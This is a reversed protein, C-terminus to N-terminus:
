ATGGLRADIACARCADAWEGPHTACEQARTPNGRHYHYLEPENKIARLVYRRPNTVEDASRSLVTEAVKRAHSRDGRTATEIKQWDEDTLADLASPSQSPYTVVSLPRSPVPRPDRVSPDRVEASRESTNARVEASGKGGTRLKRMRERAEAREAEVKERTPQYDHWEHFSFGGDVKHWLGSEVLAKAQGLNGLLKVAHAPVFGDTLHQASWAGARVWLGMAANGAMLVKDHTALADDVKFWTM